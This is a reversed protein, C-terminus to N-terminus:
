LCVLVPSENPEHIAIAVGAEIEITAQNSRRLIADVGLDGAVFSTEEGNCLGIFRNDVESVYQCIHIFQNM